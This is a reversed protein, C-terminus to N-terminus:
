NMWLDISCRSVTDALKALHTAERRRRTSSCVSTNITLPTGGGNLKEHLEYGHAGGSQDLTVTVPTSRLFTSSATSASTATAPKPTSQAM